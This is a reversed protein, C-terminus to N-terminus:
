LTEKVVRELGSILEQSAMQLCARGLEENVIWTPHNDVIGDKSVDVLRDTDWANEIIQKPYDTPPITVLSADCALMMSTESNGAHEDLPGGLLEATKKLTEESDFTLHELRVGTFESQYKEVFRNLMSINGGHWSAIVIHKAYPALSRCLDRLVLEMTEKEIWVSGAFGAHEKSCTIRLTPLFIIELLAKETPDFDATKMQELFM